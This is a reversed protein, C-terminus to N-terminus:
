RKPNAALYANIFRDTFDRVDDRVQSELKQSGVTGIVGPASWTAVALVRISPDRILTVGQRLEVNVSFAYFKAPNKLVQVNVYLYPAGATAFSQERTLITIGAQRLRLEVDTQVQDERLGDHQAEDPLQEVIVYVGSLGTLTKRAQEDDQGVASSALTASLLVVAAFVTKM